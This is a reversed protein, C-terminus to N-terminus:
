KKADLYFKYGFFAGLCLVFDLVVILWAQSFITGIAGVGSGSTPFNILWLVAFTVAFITAFVAVIWTAVKKLKSKKEDM